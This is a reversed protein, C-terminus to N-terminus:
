PATALDNAPDHLLHGGSHRGLGAASGSVLGAQGLFGRFLGRKLMAGM